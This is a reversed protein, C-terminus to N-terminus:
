IAGREAEPNWYYYPIVIAESGLCTLLFENSSSSVAPYRVFENGEWRLYVPYDFELFEQETQAEIQKIMHLLQGDRMDDLYVGQDFDSEEVPDCLGGQDIVRYNKGDVTLVAFWSAPDFNEWHLLEM